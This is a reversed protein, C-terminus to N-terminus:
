GARYPDVQLIRKRVLDASATGELELMVLLSRISQHEAPADRASGKLAIKSPAIRSSFRLCRAFKSTENKSEDM